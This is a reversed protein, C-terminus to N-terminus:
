WGRGHRLHRAPCKLYFGRMKGPVWKLSLSVSALLPWIFELDCSEWLVDPIHGWIKQSWTWNKNTKQGVCYLYGRGRDGDLAVTHIIHSRKFLLKKKKKIKIANFDTISLQLKNTLAKIQLASFRPAKQCVLVSTPLISSGLGRECEM